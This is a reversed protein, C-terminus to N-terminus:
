LTGALRSKPSRSDPILILALVIGLGGGALGVLLDTLCGTGPIRDLYQLLEYVAPLLPVTAMWLYKIWGRQGNWITAIFLGYALAWLGEPLSYVVWRPLQLSGNLFNNRWDYLVQSAGLAEAWRFFRFEQTRFLVYIMGGMIIAVVSILLTALIRLTHKQRNTKM